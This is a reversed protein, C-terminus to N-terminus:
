KVGQFALRLGLGLGLALGLKQFCDVMALLAIVRVCVIKKKETRSGSM